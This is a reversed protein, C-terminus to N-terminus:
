TKPKNPNLTLAVAPVWIIMKHELRHEAFFLAGDSSTSITGPALSGEELLLVRDVVFHKWDLSSRLISAIYVQLRKQAESENLNNRFRIKSFM